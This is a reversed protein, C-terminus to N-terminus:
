IKWLVCYVLKSCKQSEKPKILYKECDNGEWTNLNLNITNNQYTLLM